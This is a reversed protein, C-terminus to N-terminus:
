IYHLHLLIPRYYIVLTSRLDKSNKFYSTLNTSKNSDNFIPKLLLPCSM